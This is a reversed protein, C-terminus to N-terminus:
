KEGEKLLLISTQYVGDLDILTDTNKVKNERALSEAQELVQDVPLANKSFLFYFREYYPADDLEYAYPLRANAGRELKQSDYESFPFHLTVIGRGDISLLMGYPYDGANYEIQLLDHERVLSRESLERAEGNTEKFVMVQPKLGKLRTGEMYVPDDTSDSNNLFPMVGILLAIAAAAMLPVPSTVIRIINSKKAPSSEDPAKGEADMRSRILAAMKDSPYAELISRNDEDLAKVKEMLEPQEEFYHEYREDLESLAKQEIFLDPLKERKM